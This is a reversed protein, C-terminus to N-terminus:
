VQAQAWLTTHDDLYLIDKMLDWAIEDILECTTSKASLPRSRERHSKPSPDCYPSISCAALLQRQNGHMVQHRIDKVAQSVAGIPM